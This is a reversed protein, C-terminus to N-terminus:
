NEPRLMAEWGNEEDVGLDSSPATQWSAGDSDEAEGAEGTPNRSRTNSIESFANRSAEGLEGNWLEKLPPQSVEGLLIAQTARWATEHLTWIRDHPSGIGETGSASGNTSSHTHRSATECRTDDSNRLDQPQANGRGSGEGSSVESTHTASVTTHSSEVSTCHNERCMGSANPEREAQTAPSDLKTVKSAVSGFSGSRALALQSLGDQMSPIQTECSATPGTHQQHQFNFNSAERERQDSMRSDPATYRPIRESPGKQLYIRLTARTKLSTSRKAQLMKKLPIQRANKLLSKCHHRNPNRQTCTTWMSNNYGSQSTVCGPKPSGAAVLWRASELNNNFCAAWLPTAGWKDRANLEAGHELLTELIVLSGNDAARHLAVMKTKPSTTSVDYGLDILKKVAEM